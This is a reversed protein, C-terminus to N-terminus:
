SEKKFLLLPSPCFIGGGKASREKQATQRFRRGVLIRKESSRQGLDEVRKWQEETQGGLFDGMLLNEPPTRTNEVGRSGLTGIGVGFGFRQAKEFPFHEFGTLFVSIPYEGELKTTGAIKEVTQVRLSHIRGALPAPGPPPVRLERPHRELHPQVVDDVPGAGADWKGGLENGREADQGPGRGSTCM